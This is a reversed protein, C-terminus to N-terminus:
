YGINQKCNPNVRIENTEIEQYYYNEPFTFVYNRGLRTEAYRVDLFYKDDTVSYFPMLVRYRTNNQEEDIIRWRKLDWWIRNEFALEKRRETRIVDRDEESSTLQGSLLTAGGRERIDNICDTAEALYNEGTSSASQGLSVLEWAAEARNLLVEAYRIEIWPQENQTADNLSNPDPNLYKRRYFGSLCYEGGGVSFPGNEGAIKMKGKNNEDQTRDYLTNYYQSDSNLSVFKDATNNETIDNVLSLDAINLESYNRTEEESTLRSMQSASQSGTWIGRRIEITQNKFESMPLIVTAALRPECGEFADMPSDWLKYHGSEDLNEFHGDADKNDFEFMEVFDLTPCSRSNQGGTSTQLPQVANDFAHGLEPLKWYRGFITEPTDNLFINIFNQTIAAKNGAVWEGRYLTFGGEDVIKTADYAEKFYGAARESPIGCVRVGNVPSYDVTNYKAISGAHLMARSKLAAAAYKTARGKFATAPLMEIARDYDDSIFDWTDEESDRYLMTQELTVTAPYDIVEDVIPVGGYRKALAHYIGARIFYAQGLYNSYEESTYRDEYQPLAEIMINVDRIWKYAKSWFSGAPESMFGGVEIGISEGTINDSQPWIAPFTQNFMDDAHTFWYRFDELPLNTYLRALYSETGTVSGFIDEEGVVNLPPRDLDICSLSMVGCIFLLINRKLKM